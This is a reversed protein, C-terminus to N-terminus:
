RKAQVEYIGVILLWAGSILFAFLVIGGIAAIYLGATSGLILLTAGIVEALYCLTGGGLRPVTLGISSTGARIAVVYGRIFITTAILWLVLWEFGLAALPQNGILAFSSAMFIATFGSLMNIARNKHTSNGLIIVPNMSLAVFILGTLAAAGSGVAVFFNNWQDLMARAGM